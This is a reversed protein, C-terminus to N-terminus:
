NNKNSHCIIPGDKSRQFTFRSFMFTASFNGMENSKFFLNRMKIVLVRYVLPFRLILSIPSRTYLKTPYFILKENIRINGCATRKIEVKLDNFRTIKKQTIFFHTTKGYSKELKENKLKRNGCNLFFTFM